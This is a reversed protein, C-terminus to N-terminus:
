SSTGASGVLASAALQEPDASVAAAILQGAAAREADGSPSLLQTTLYRLVLDIAAPTSACGGATLAHAIHARAASWGQGDGPTALAALVAPEDRAVRRVAANAGVATAAAVLARAFGGASEAVGAAITDIEAVVLAAYVDDRTRFHNYLTAKAIGAMMAIDGMTAKRSGYKAVAALAGSLAAERTRGM